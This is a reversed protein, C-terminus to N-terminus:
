IDGRSLLKDSDRTSREGIDSRYFMNPIMANGVNQNAKQIADSM